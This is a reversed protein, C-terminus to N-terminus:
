AGGRDTRRVVLLAIVVALVLPVSAALLHPWIESSFVLRRAEDGIPCDPCTLVGTSALLTRAGVV